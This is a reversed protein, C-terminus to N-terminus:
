WGGLYDWAGALANRAQARLDGWGREAARSGFALEYEARKTPRGVARPWLGLPV